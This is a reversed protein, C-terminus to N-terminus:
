IALTVMAYNTGDFSLPRVDVDMTLTRGDLTRIKVRLDTFELGQGIVYGRRENSADAFDPDLFGDLSMGLVDGATHAGLMRRSAANAYVVRDLDYLMVPQPLAELAAALLPELDKNAGAVM